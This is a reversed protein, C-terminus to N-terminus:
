GYAPVQAGPDDPPPSPPEVQTPEPETPQVIPTEEPAPAPDPPAGYLTMCCGGLSIAGVVVAARTLRGVIMPERPEARAASSGCFPCVTDDTRVHRQCSPCIAHTTM